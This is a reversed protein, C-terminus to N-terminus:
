PLSPRALDARRERERKPRTLVRQLLHAHKFHPAPPLRPRALHPPPRTPAAFLASLFSFFSLSHQIRPRRGDSRRRGRGQVRTKKTTRGTRQEVECSWGGELHGGDGAQPRGVQAASGPGGGAQGGHSRQGARGGRTPHTHRIKTHEIRKRQMCLGHRDRQSRRNGVSLWHTVVRMGWLPSLPLRCSSLAAVLVAPLPAHACMPAHPPTAGRRGVVARGRRGATRQAWMEVGLYRPVPQM